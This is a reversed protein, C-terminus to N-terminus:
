EKFTKLERYEKKLKEKYQKTMEQVDMFKGNNEDRQNQYIEVMYEPTAESLILRRFKESEGYYKNKTELVEKKLLKFGIGKFIKDEIDKEKQISCKSIYIFGRKM